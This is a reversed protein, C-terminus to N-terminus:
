ECAAMLEGSKDFAVSCKKAAAPVILGVTQKTNKYRCIFYLSTKYKKAEDQYDPLTWVTERDNDPMLNVFDEPPGVFLSADSLPHTKDQLTPHSPCLTTTAQAVGISLSLVMVSMFFKYWPM